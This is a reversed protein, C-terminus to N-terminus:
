RSCVGAALRRAETRDGTLSPSGGVSAINARYGDAVVVAAMMSIDEGRAAM